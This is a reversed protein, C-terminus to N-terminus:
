DELYPVQQLRSGRRHRSEHRGDHRGRGGHVHRGDAPRREVVPQPHPGRAGARQRGLADRGREGPCSEARMRLLATVLTAAGGKVDQTGRGYFFGDKENFAFPEMTWDKRQAEVVHLHALLLIPKRARDSGRLRVVLSKHTEDPGVVAIDAAPVGAARFRAAVLEAAKTTNGSSATTNTEILEKFVARGVARQDFAQAGATTSLVVLAAAAFFRSNMFAGPPALRHPMPIAPRRDEIRARAPGGGERRTPRSDRRVEGRHDLPRLPAQLWADADELLGGGLRAVRELNPASWNSGAKRPTFRQAYRRPDLTKVTSDTWGYCLAEEVADSIAKVQRDNSGTLILFVDTIALKESVDIAVIDTAKKDSAAQAARKTWDLARETAAM